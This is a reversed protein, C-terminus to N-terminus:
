KTIHKKILQKIKAKKEKKPMMPLAEYEGKIREDFIVHTRCYVSDKFVERKCGEGNDKTHSCRQTEKKAKEMAEVQPTIKKAKQYQNYIAKGWIYEIQKDNIVFPLRGLEKLPFEKSIPSPKMRKLNSHQKSDKLVVGFGSRYKVGYVEGDFKPLSHKVVIFERDSEKLQYYISM